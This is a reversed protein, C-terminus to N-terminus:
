REVRRTLGSIRVVNPMQTELCIITNTIWAAWEYKNKFEGYVNFCGRWLM